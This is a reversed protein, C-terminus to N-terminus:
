ENWNGGKIVYKFREDLLNALESVKAKNKFWFVPYLSEKGKIEADYNDRIFRLFNAWSLGLLRAYLVNYSSDTYVITDYVIDSKVLRYLKQIPEKEYNIYKNM